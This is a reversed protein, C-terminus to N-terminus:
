RVVVRAFLREQLQVIHPVTGMVRIPTMGCIRLSKRRTIRPPRICQEYHDPILSNHARLSAFPPPLCCVDDRWEFRRSRLRVVSIVRGEGDTWRQTDVVVVQSSFSTAWGDM